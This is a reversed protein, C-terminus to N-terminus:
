GARPSRQELRMPLTEGPRLSLRCVPTVRHGEAVRLRFRGILTALCIVTEVMAFSAGTCIRPGLSFPVYAYRSPAGSGGPLWREPEFADPREWLDRHRHLLWPVLVVLAGAPIARNRIRDAERAQRAQFPIPPYLRLTEQIVARTYPLRPLDDNTAARGGLADVEALVAAEAWPAAALLYWAWALTNATTEHGAMFLVAAEDRIADRDMPRGTVPSNTEAMARVLSPEGPDGALIDAILGDLEARIRTASRRAARGHLRPLVDPLGMLSLVDMQGVTAQFNRFGAVIAEASREALQRGFITRCIIFATLHAMEQLVDITAGDGRAAWRGRWMAAVETITPALTALRSIHTVPAVIRRREAWTEGDSIFLGDGILPKLAHRQQPSKSQYNAARDVFVAQVVDPYNAVFIHRRLVRNGFFQWGFAQEPWIDLLNTRAGWLISLPNRWHSTRAPHPPTYEPHPIALPPDPLSAM